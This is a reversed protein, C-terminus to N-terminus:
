EELKIRHPTHRKDYGVYSIRIPDSDGPEAWIQAEGAEPHVKLIAQLEKILDILTM